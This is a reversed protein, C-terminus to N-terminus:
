LQILIAALLIFGSGLLSSLSFTESFILVGMISAVVPEINGLISARSAEVLRLGRYYLTVGALASILALGLAAGWALSSMYLLNFGPRAVFSLFLTAFGLVYILVTWPPYKRLALKLLLMSCTWILSAALGTGIALPALRLSDPRYIQTLLLVGIVSLLLAALKTGTLLEKLFIRAMVTVFIPYTYLLFVAQSISSLQITHLYSLSFLSHIFGLCALLPLDRKAVWFHKGGILAQITFLVLFAISTRLFSAELYSLNQTYLTRAFVGTTGWMVGAALLYIYGTKGLPRGM